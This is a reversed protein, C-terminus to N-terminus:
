LATDDYKLWAQATADYTCLGIGVVRVIQNKYPKKIAQNLATENSFTLISASFPTIGNIIDSIQTVYRRFSETIRSDRVIMEQPEPKRNSM